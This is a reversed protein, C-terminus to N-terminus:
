RHSERKGDETPGAASRYILDTMLEGAPTTLAAGFFWYRGGEHLARRLPRRSQVLLHNDGARLHTVATTKAKRFLPHIGEEAEAPIEDVEEGNLWLAVPGGTQFQLVVEREDPSVITTALYAVLPVGAELAQWHEAAFVVSHPQNVDIVQEPTQDYVKWGLGENPTGCEDVVQQLALPAEEQNYVVARWAYITPFLVKSEHQYTLMEGQWTIRAQASWRGSQVQGDFAFPTDVIRPETLNALKVTHQQSTVGQEFTFTIEVDCSPRPRAPPVVILRGLQQAAEALATFEVFRVFPGGLRAVADARGPAYTRLVTDLLADEEEGALHELDLLRMIDARILQGNHAEGLASMGGPALATVTIPQRKDYAPLHISTRLEAPEYTWDLSQQDAILIKEPRRSGELRIEYGRRDPLTDCRGEVAAIHVQWVDPAEMTTTIETWEFQGAQYANTLGDDEYLRFHGEEGPFVSLILRDRPLADTTGSALHTTTPPEVPAARPLITGAKVLMPVRDLGGLLRV